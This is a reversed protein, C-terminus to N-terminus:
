TVIVAKRRRYTGMAMLRPRAACGESKAEEHRGTRSRNEAPRGSAVPQARHQRAGHAVASAPLQGAHAARPDYQEALLRRRQLLALLRNFMGSRTAKRGCLAYADALWFSCALFRGEQPPTKELTPLTRYRM